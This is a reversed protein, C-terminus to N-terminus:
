KGSEDVWEIAALCPGGISHPSSPPLVIAFCSPSMFATRGIGPAHSLRVEPETMLTIKWDAAGGAFFIRILSSSLVITSKSSCYFSAGHLAGDDDDAVGEADTLEGVRGVEAGLAGVGEAVDQLRVM